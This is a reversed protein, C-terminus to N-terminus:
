IISRHGGRGSACRTFKAPRALICCDDRAGMALSRANLVPRFPRPLWGRTRKRNRGTAVRRGDRTRLLFRSLRWLCGCNPHLTTSYQFQFLIPLESSPKKLRVCLRRVCFAFRVIAAGCTQGVFCGALPLYYNYFPAPRLFTSIQLPV